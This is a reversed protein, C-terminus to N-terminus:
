GRSKVSPRDVIPPQRPRGLNSGAVFWRPAHIGILTEGAPSRCNQGPKAKCMSCHHEARVRDRAAYTERKLRYQRDKEAPSTRSINTREAEDIEALVVFWDATALVRKQTIRVRVPKGRTAGETAFKLHKAGHRTYSKPSVAQKGNFAVVVRWIVPETQKSPYETLMRGNIAGQTHRSASKYMQRMFRQDQADCVGWHICIVRERLRRRYYGEGSM